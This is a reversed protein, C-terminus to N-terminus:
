TRADRKETQRQIYASTKKSYHMLTISYTQNAPSPESVASRLIHDLYAHSAPCLPTQVNKKETYTGGKIGGAAPNECLNRVYQLLLYRPVIYTEFACM